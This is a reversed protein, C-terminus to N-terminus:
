YKNYKISLYYLYQFWQGIYTFYIGDIYTWQLDIITDTICFKIYRIYMSYIVNLVIVDRAWRCLIMNM